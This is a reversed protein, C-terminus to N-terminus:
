HAPGPVKVHAGDRGRTGPKAIWLGGPDRSPRLVEPRARIATSWAGVRRRSVPVRAFSPTRCLKLRERVQEARPAEGTSGRPWGPFRRLPPARPCSPEGVLELYSPTAMSAPSTVAAGDQHSSVRTTPGRRRLRPPPPRRGAPRRRSGGPPPVRCAAAERRSAAPRAPGIMQAASTQRSCPWCVGARNGGSRSNPNSATTSLQVSRSTWRRGSCIVRGANGEMTARSAM